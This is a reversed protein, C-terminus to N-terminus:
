WLEALANLCDLGAAVARQGRQLHAAERVGTAQSATRLAASGADLGMCAGTLAELKCTCCDVTHRLKSVQAKKDSSAHSQM